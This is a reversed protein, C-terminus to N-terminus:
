KYGRAKWKEYDSLHKGKKFDEVESRLEDDIKKNRQREKDVSRQYRNRENEEAKSEKLAEIVKKVVGTQSSNENLRKSEAGSNVKAEAIRKAGGLWSSFARLMGGTVGPIEKLPGPAISDLFAKHRINDEAMENEKIKASAAALRKNEVEVGARAKTEESQKEILDTEKKIRAIEFASQFMNGMSPMVGMSGAPTSAGSGGYASLIPNLGAAKLDAVERQHATGSMDEQFKMQRKAQSASYAGGIVAGGITGLPGLVSGLVSGGSSGGFIKKLGSFLGM